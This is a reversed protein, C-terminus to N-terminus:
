FFDRINRIVDDPKDAQVWHGAGKVEVIDSAPCLKGIKERDEASIYSSDSGKLFIVPFGSMVPMSENDDVIGNIIRHLNKLLADANIKWAFGTASTRGVNKMILARTREEAISKSLLSEIEQRTSLRTIDSDLIASLINYHYDYEKQSNKHSFPSVDLVMLGNILEPHRLAFSVATKGGMSHGALFFKKIGTENVLELIDGTMSAYDHIASHPSLGHNRLDPLIVTFRDSLQKAVTVWNDSSGYLGHLIILAPGSGYKRNFLKM